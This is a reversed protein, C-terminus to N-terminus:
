ATGISQKAASAIVRLFRGFSRRPLNATVGTNSGETLSTAVIYVCPQKMPKEGFPWGFPAPKLFGHFRNSVM